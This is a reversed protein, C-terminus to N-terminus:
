HNNQLFPLQPGKPVVGTPNIATHSMYYHRKIHDINVTDAIGPLHYLRELYHQLNPYDVLRKQNCKFHGYYVADFRVLTTFLRWDAETIQEAMLYPQYDLRQELEDLASFLEIFAVEYADQTTAFGCKYVGNNIKQYVFDNINDIKSRLAAPYYDFDVDTYQHFESNFMRIIESSENNVITQQQKDWLVPVTVRGSYDAQALTYLQHLYKCHNISDPICGPASSFAWGNSLMLPDVISLSIVNELKKLTRFILARCAWPCALSIYLHYRNPEAKFGTSGDASICHHFESDNRVFRGQTAKTDVWQDHWIGNSLHGV